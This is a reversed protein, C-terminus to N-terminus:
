YGPGIWGLGPAAVAPPYGYNMGSCATLALAAFGLLSASLLNMFTKMTTIQQLNFKM